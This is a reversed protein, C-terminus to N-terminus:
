DTYGNGPIATLDPDLRHYDGARDAFWNATTALGTPPDLSGACISWQAADHSPRWFLSSGCTSCFAYGIAPDDAPHYWRLTSSDVIEIDAVAAASAAMHHGTTRRCRDCHCNLVDRLAGTVTFDVGGCLCSGHHPDEPATM